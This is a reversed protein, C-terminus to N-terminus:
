KDDTNDDAFTVFAVRCVGVPRIEIMDGYSNTRMRRYGLRKNVARVVARKSDTKVSITFVNTWAYNPDGAFTDTEEVRFKPMGQSM